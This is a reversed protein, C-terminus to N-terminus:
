KAGGNLTPLNGGVTPVEISDPPASEGHKCQMSAVREMCLQAAETPTAHAYDSRVDVTLGIAKVHFGVECHWGKGSLLLIPEGAKALAILIEELTPKVVEVGM